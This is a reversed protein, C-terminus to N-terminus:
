TVPTPPHYGEPMMSDFIRFILPSQIVYLDRTSNSNHQGMSIHRNGIMFNCKKKVYRYLQSILYIIGYDLENEIVCEM